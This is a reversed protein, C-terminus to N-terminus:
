ERGKRIAAALNPVACHILWYMAARSAPKPFPRWSEVKKANAEREALIARACREVIVAKEESVVRFSCVAFAAADWVDQPIDDPKM